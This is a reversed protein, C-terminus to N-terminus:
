NLGSSTTGNADRYGLRGSMRGDAGDMIKLLRKEGPAPTEQKFLKFSDPKANNGPVAPPEFATDPMLQNLKEYNFTLIQVGYSSHEILQRPLDTEADIWWESCAASTRDYKGQSQRVIWSQVRHCLRGSLQAQGEYVLGDEAIVSQVPRSTLGFPDAISTDIDAMLAAPSSDLRQGNNEDVSYLWCIAGDSGLIFAKSNMVDSIDGYVQNTGQWKFTSQNAMISRFSEDGYLFKSQVTEIGSTLRQRADKMASLLQKLRPDKAAEATLNTQQSSYDNTGVEGRFVIPDSAVGDASYFGDLTLKVPNDAPLVLPITFRRADPDYQFHQVITPVGSPSNRQLYPFGRAPPMMPQDFTVELLTLVPLTEGSAPSIKVVKPRAAGPNPTLPQTTFHWRYKEASIGSVSKFGGLFNLNLDNTKGPLLRVPIVFENRDPEYHFQGDSVFGGAYWQMEVDDPKMPQNFRIRLDQTLDVNTAGDLPSVSVVIPRNTETNESNDQQPLARVRKTQFILLYPVAPQGAQDKFNHFQESNLWWAYTRGPELRVKMVCTRQDALYHPPEVSEPTSNEWATSWSWSGDTMAKSFRVRIEMEGPEVNHAGSVPFTEVVVPPQEALTQGAIEASSNKSQVLKYRLKVARPNETFGTIQLLGTEGTRSEVAFTVPLVVSEPLFVEDFGSVIPQHLSGKQLAETVDTPSATEWNSSPFEAFKAGGVKLSTLNIKKGIFGIFLDAKTGRWWDAFVTASETSEKAPMLVLTGDDLCLLQSDQDRGAALTREIVPDFSLNQAAAPATNTKGEQVLKYRIKVARPNDTFGTIQLIGLKCAGTKFFITQPLKDPFDCTQWAGPGTVDSSLFCFGDPGDLPGMDTIKDWQDGDPKTMLIGSVTIIHIQGDYHIAMGPKKLPALHQEVNMVATDSPKPDPVFRNYDLNWLPTWGNEDMPLTCETVPGFSAQLRDRKAPVIAFWFVAAVVVSAVFLVSTAIVLVKGLRERWSKLGWVLALALAVSGIAAVLGEQWPLITIPLSSGLTGALFPGWAWKGFISNESGVPSCGSRGKNVARWVGWVIMTNSVVCIFATAIGVLWYIREDSAPQLGLRVFVIDIDSFTDIINSALFTILGDLALLPFLLGNFVALWMGHIKGVPRRIQSMAVWGLITSILLCLVLFAALVNSPGEDLLNSDGIVAYVVFALMGLIGFCVGVIATHSCRPAIEAKRKGSEAKETQAEECRSSGLPTAVITEVCTKVESVQQYRLEPNKELARLVVEDLRVDIQVKHSPPEIRKGPLEGTLMQYFVVGLAYIDARHDVEGPAAIQEPAMYQPTGMVKGADTLEQLAATGAAASANAPSSGSKESADRNESGSRSPCGRETGVIKALGFDAVKVRGRRDLLINEPKIDRHVIGQDHAFQLADCIQPVIALAERPSIRGAHLLQRLNVGDVFEMLFFYLLAPTEGAAKDSEREGSAPSVGASSQVQGFEYLTVIGPHNLKALAKAERAFRGAFAPDDGIGPPLIKLAVIRDLQKQRAKYVAGMGGKGILELIELQPFLPALEAVSPPNFPPQKADTVTDAAAGMKLLCAPCLGALAGTPLPTGCRPCKNGDPMPQDLKLTDM